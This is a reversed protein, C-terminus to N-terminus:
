DNVPPDPYEWEISAGNLARRALEEILRETTCEAMMQPLVPFASSYSANGRGYLNDYVSFRAPYGTWDEGVDIITWVRM